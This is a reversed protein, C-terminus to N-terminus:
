RIPVPASAQLPAFLDALKMSQGVIDAGSVNCVIAAVSRTDPRILLVATSGQHGGSHYYLPRGKNDHDIFWGISNGTAVGDATSQSTFMLKRSIESFFKAGIV